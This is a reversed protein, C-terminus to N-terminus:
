SNLINLETNINEKELTPYVELRNDFSSGNSLWDLVISIIKKPDKICLKGHYLEPDVSIRNFM